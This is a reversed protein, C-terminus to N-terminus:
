RIFDRLRSIIGHGLRVRSPLIYCPRYQPAPPPAIVAACSEPIMEIAQRVVPLALGFFQLANLGYSPSMNSSKRSVFTSSLGRAEFAASHLSRVAAMITEYIRDISRSYLYSIRDRDDADNGNGYDYVSDM